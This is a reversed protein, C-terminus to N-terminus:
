PASVSGLYHFLIAIQRPTFYRKRSEWGTLTLARHLAPYSSIERRLCRSATHTTVTDFYLSAIWNTPVTRDFPEGHIQLGEILTSLQTDDIVQGTIHDRMPAPTTTFSPLEPHATDTPRNTSM